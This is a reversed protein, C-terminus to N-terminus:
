FVHGVSAPLKIANNNPKRSIKREFTNPLRVSEVWSDQYSQQSLDYVEPTVIVILEKSTQNEKKQEFLSSLLPVGELRPVNSREIEKQKYFLGGIAFSQGSLLETTSTVRRVNYGPLVTQGNNYTVPSQNSVEANFSVHIRNSPLLKPTFDLIIGHSKYSVNSFGDQNIIPIPTEGGVLIKAEQGSLTTLSPESVISVLGKQHLVNIISSIDTKSTNFGISSTFSGADVVNNANFFRLANGIALTYNGLRFLSRWNTGFVKSLDEKVEVIKLKLNIQLNNEVQTKDVLNITKPILTQIRDIAQKKDSETKFSGEVVLNTGNIRLMLANDRITDSILYKLKNLDYYVEVHKRWYENGDVDIAIVDTSGIGIPILYFSNEGIQKLKAINDSQVFLTKVQSKVSLTFGKDLSLYIKDVKSYANTIFLVHAIILIIIKNM